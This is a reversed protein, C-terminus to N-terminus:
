RVLATVAIEVDLGGKMLPSQVCARTPACGEPVWSDWVLNFQDFHRSDSLWINATLLRTRNVGASALLTDIRTLIESAQETVSGHATDPVQGALHVVGHAIVIQSMRANTKLRRIDNSM